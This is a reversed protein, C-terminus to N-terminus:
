RFHGPRGPLPYIHGEYEFHLDGDEKSTITGRLAYPLSKVDGNQLKNLLERSSQSEEVEVPWSETGNAAISTEVPGKYVIIENGDVSMSFDIHLIDLTVGNVNRMSLQLAITEDAHGLETMRVMPAAGRILKPACATLMMAALLLLAFGLTKTNVHTDPKM